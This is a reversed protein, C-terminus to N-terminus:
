HRVFVLAADDMFILGWEKNGLVANVLSPQEGRSLMLTNVGYSELKGAWDEDAASIAFYDQWIAESFLEIRGDVFVPYEPYAAWILYSGFSMAHFVNGSPQAEMIYETAAVPTESSILGAKKDPMPLYAKFWPLTIMALVALTAVFSWNIVPNGYSKRTFGTDPKYMQWIACSHEAVLPGSALGFWIIGRSTRLALVAFVLFGCIQIISVRRPSIAIILSSLILASLFLAGGLTDFAPSAWEIVLNQVVPSSWLNQIYRVMEIGAPNVLCALVSLIVILMPYAIHSARFEHPQVQRSRVQDWLEQGSWLIIIFLGLPYSGHCNVWLIMLFPFILAWKRHIGRRLYYLLCIGAGGLLITIAQPRVNWDNLGLAAAFATGFAALRWDQSQKFCAFFVLLYASTIVVSQFFIVLAAGGAQHVLYLTIDMLWFSQYSPYPTGIATYSFFDMTPIQGSALIERGVAMHWWFDHPRIPHTNIFIFVGTLIVLIWLHQISLRPSSHRVPAYNM